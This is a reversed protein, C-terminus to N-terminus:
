SVDKDLSMVNEPLTPWVRDSFSSFLTRWRMSLWDPQELVLLTWLQEPIPSPQPSLGLVQSFLPAVNNRSIADAYTNDVGPVHEFTIVFGFAASIFSLTRLLHMVIGSPERASGKNASVVVSMNDCRCLVHQQSWSAGWVAAALVIPVLEKVMISIGDWQPPWSNCGTLVGSLAVGGLDLLM